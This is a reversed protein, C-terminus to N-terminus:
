MYSLVYLIQRRPDPKDLGPHNKKELETWKGPLDYNRKRRLLQTINWETFIGCYWM